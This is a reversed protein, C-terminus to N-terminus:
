FLKLLEFLSDKSEGRSDGGMMRLKNRGGARGTDVMTGQAQLRPLRVRVEQLDMKKSFKYGPDIEGAVVAVVQNTTAGGQHGNWKTNDDITRRQRGSHRDYM